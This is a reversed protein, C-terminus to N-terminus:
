SCQCFVQGSTPTKNIHLLSNVPFENRNQNVRIIVPSVILCLIACIADVIWCADRAKMDGYHWSM